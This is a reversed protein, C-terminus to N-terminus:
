KADRETQEKRWEKFEADRKADREAQEKRWEKFEADRREDREIQEKERKADRDALGQLFSQLVSTLDNLGVAGAQEAAPKVAANNPLVDNNAGTTM